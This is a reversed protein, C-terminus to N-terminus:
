RAAYVAWQLLVGLYVLLGLGLLWLWGLRGRTRILYYPLYLVWLFFIFFGLDFSPRYINIRDRSDAHVWFALLGVFAFGWVKEFAESTQSGFYFLTAQYIAVLWSIGVILRLIAVSSMSEESAVRLRLRAHSQM